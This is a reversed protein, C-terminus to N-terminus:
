FFFSKIFAALATGATIAWRVWEGVEKRKTKKGSELAAIGRHTIFVNGHHVFFRDKGTGVVHGEPEELYGLDLLYAFVNNDTHLLDFPVGSLNASLTRLVASGKNDLDLGMM